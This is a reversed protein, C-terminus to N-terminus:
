FLHRSLGRLDSVVTFTMRIRVMYICRGALVVFDLFQHVKSKLRSGRTIRLMHLRVEPLADHYDPAQYSRLGYIGPPGYSVSRKTLDGQSNAPARTRLFNIQRKWIRSLPASTCRNPIFRKTNPSRRAAPFGHVLLM